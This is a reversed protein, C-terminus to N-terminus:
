NRCFINGPRLDSVWLRWRQAAVNWCKCPTRAAMWCNQALEMAETERMSVMADVLDHSM